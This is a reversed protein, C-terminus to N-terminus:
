LQNQGQKRTTKRVQELWVGIAGCKSCLFLLLFHCTYAFLSVILPFGTDTAPCDCSHQQPKQAMAHRRRLTHPLARNAWKGGSLPPNLPTQPPLDHLFGIKNRCVGGTRGKDPSSRFLLRERMMIFANMRNGQFPPPAPFGGLDSALGGEIGGQWPPLFSRIGRKMGVLPFLAWIPNSPKRKNL